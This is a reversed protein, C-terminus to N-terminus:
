RHRGALVSRARCRRLLVRTRALLASLAYHGLQLPTLEQRVIQARRHVLQHRHGQLVVLVPWHVENTQMPELKVHPACHDQRPLTLANRISRAHRHALRQHRDSLIYQARLCELLLLHLHGLLALLAQHGPRLPTLVKQVSLARHHM